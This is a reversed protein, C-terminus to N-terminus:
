YRNLSVNYHPEINGSHLVVLLQFCSHSGYFGPRGEMAMAGNRKSGTRGTHKEFPKCRLKAALYTSTTLIRVKKVPQQTDTVQAGLSHLPYHGNSSRFWWRVVVVLLRVSLLIQLCCTSGTPSSLILCDGRIISQSTECSVYLRSEQM